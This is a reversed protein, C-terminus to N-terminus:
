GETNPKSALKWIWALVALGVALAALFLVLPSYEGTVPLDGPHFWPELSFARVQARLLAMVLVTAGVLWAAPITRGTFGMVLAAVALAVGALLSLTALVDGGMFRLMVPQELAVLWWLGAFMQAVTGWSFWKLGVAESRAAADTGRGPGLRAVLAAALGGVALSACLFHLWRPLFRPEMFEFMRGAAPGLFGPWLDPRLMMGMANALVLSVCLALAAGLGLFAGGSGPEAKARHQHIYYSYYGLVLLVIMSMFWVASLVATPYFLQGYLVQLFLLPAVGLNVALAFVTPLKASLFAAAPDNRNGSRLTLAVVAGGVLVNVLMIHLAFTLINLGEFWGWAVPLADPSPLVVANM